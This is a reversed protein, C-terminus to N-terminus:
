KAVKEETSYDTLIRLIRKTSLRGYVEDDIKMVPALSCAGICRVMRTTFLGDPSTDNPPVINLHRM